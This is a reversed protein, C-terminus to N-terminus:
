QVIYSLPSFLEKWFTGSGESLMSVCGGHGGGPSPALHTLGPLHPSSLRDFSVHFVPLLSLLKANALASALAAQRGAKMERSKGKMKTGVWTGASPQGQVGSRHCGGAQQGPEGARCGRPLAPASRPAFRNARSRPLSPCKMLTSKM